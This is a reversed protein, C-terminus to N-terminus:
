KPKDLHYNGKSTSPAGPERTRQKRLRNLRAQMKQIPIADHTQKGVELGREYVQMADDVRHLAELARGLPWYAATYQPNLAVARELADVADPFRDTEVYAHGLALFLAPDAPDLAILQKLKEIPLPM